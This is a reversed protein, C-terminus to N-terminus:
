YKFILTSAAFKDSQRISDFRFFRNPLSFRISDYSKKGSNSHEVVPVCIEPVVRRLMVLQMAQTKRQSRQSVNNTETEHIAGIQSTCLTESFRWGPGIHKHIETLLPSPKIVKQVCFGSVNSM